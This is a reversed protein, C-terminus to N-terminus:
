EIEYNTVCCMQHFEYNPDHPFYDLFNPLFVLAFVNLLVYLSLHYPNYFNAVLIILSISEYLKFYLKLIPMIKKINLNFTNLDDVDMSHYHDNGKLKKDHTFHKELVCAGNLVAVELASITDDPVVHDSYGTLCEPFTRKLVNIMGLQAHSEPTPYNLVCHLLVIEKAGGQRATDVALQIETM